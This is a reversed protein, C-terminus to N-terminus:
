NRAHRLTALDLARAVCGYRPVQPQRVMWSVSTPESPSRTKNAAEVTLSAGHTPWLAVMSTCTPDGRPTLGVALGIGALDVNSGDVAVTCFQWCGARADEEPWEESSSRAVEPRARLSRPCFIIIDRQEQRGQTPSRWGPRVDTTSASIRSPRRTAGKHSPDRGHGRGGRRGAGVWGRGSANERPLEGTPRDSSSGALKIAM